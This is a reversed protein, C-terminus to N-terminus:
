NGLRIEKMNVPDYPANPFWFLEEKPPFLISEWRPPLLASLSLLTLLRIWIMIVNIYTLTTSFWFTFIGFRIGQSVGLVQENEQPEEIVKRALTHDKPGDVLGSM